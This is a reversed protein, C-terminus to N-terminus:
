VRPCNLGEILLQIADTPIRKRKRNRPRKQVYRLPTSFATEDFLELQPSKEIARNDHFVPANEVSAIERRNRQCEYSVVAGSQYIVVLSDLCERIEVCQRLLDRHVYLRYRKFSIRGQGDVTRPSRKSVALLSLSFDEPLPRGRANGLKDLPTQVEDKRFEWHRRQNYYATKGTYITSIGSVSKQRQLHPYFYVREKGVMSEAFPNEWPKGPTTYRVKIRLTAMVLTYLLSTFAKANDSLIQEPLGWQAFTKLLIRVADLAGKSLCIEDSLLVRSLGDLVILSYVKQGNPLTLLHMHDIFWLQHYRSLVYSVEPPRKPPKAEHRIRWITSPSLTQNDYEFLSLRWCGLKPYERHKKLVADKVTDTVKRTIRHSISKIREYTRHTEYRAIWYYITSRPIGYQASLTSVKVGEKWLSLM